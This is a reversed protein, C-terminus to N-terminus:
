CRVKNKAAEVQKESNENKLLICLSAIASEFDGDTMLGIVLKQFTIHRQSTRDTFIQNCNEEKGLRCAALIDNLSQVVVCCKRVYELSPLENVESVNLDASMTQTNDPIASPPNENVLLEFILM